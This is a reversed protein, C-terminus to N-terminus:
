SGEPRGNPSNRQNARREYEAEREAQERAIKREDPEHDVRDIVQTLIQQAGANANLENVQAHYVDDAEEILKDLGMPNEKVLRLAQRYGYAEAVQNLHKKVKEDASDLYQQLHGANLNDRVTYGYIYDAKFLPTVDPVWCKGPGLVEELKGWWYSVCDRQELYEIRQSFQVGVMRLEKITGARAEDYAMALMESISSTFWRDWPLGVTDIPYRMSGPINEFENVMWLPAHPNVKNFNSLWIARKAFEHPQHIDFWHDIPRRIVKYADNISWLAVDEDQQNTIYRTQPSLGAICLIPRKEPKRDPLEAHYDM